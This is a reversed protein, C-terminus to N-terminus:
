FGGTQLYFEFKKLCETIEEKVWGVIELGLEWPEGRGEHDWGSQGAKCVCWIYVISQEAYLEHTEVEFDKKKQKRGM